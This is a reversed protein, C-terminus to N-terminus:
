ADADETKKRVRPTVGWSFPQAATLAIAHDLQYGM